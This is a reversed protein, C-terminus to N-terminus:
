WDLGAARLEGATESTAHLYESAADCGADVVQERTRCHHPCEDVDYYPCEGECALMFGAPDDEAERWTWGAGMYAM